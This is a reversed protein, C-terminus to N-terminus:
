RKKLMMKMAKKDQESREGFDRRLAGRLFARYNKYHKGHSKCYDLLAAAKQKVVSAAEINFDVLLTRIDEESVSTLYEESQYLKERERKKNEKNENKDNNDTKAVKRHGKKEREVKREVEQYREWNKVTVITFSGRSSREIMREVELLGFWYFVTSQAFGVEEGFKPYSTIFQGPQLTIKKKGMFISNAKHNARLLCNIWIKM